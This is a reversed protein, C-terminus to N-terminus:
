DGYAPFDKLIMKLLKREVVGENVDEKTCYKDVLCSIIQDPNDGVGKGERIEAIIDMKDQIKFMLYVEVLIPM